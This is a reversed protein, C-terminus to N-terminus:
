VVWRENGMRGTREPSVEGLTFVPYKVRGQSTHKGFERRLTRRRRASTEPVEGRECM